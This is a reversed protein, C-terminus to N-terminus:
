RPLANYLVTPRSLNSLVRLGKGTELNRAKRVTLISVRYHAHPLFQTHALNPVKLHKNSHTKVKVSTDHKIKGIFLCRSHSGKRLLVLMSSTFDGPASQGNTLSYSHIMQTELSSIVVSTSPSLKLHSIVSLEIVM